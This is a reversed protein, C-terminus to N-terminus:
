LNNPLTGQAICYTMQNNSQPNAQHQLPLTLQFPTLTYPKRPLESWLSNAGLVPSGLEIRPYSSGRSSPM